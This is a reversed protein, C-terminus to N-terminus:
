KIGLYFVRKTQGVVYNDAKTTSGTSFCASFFPYHHSVNGEELIMHKNYNTVYLPFGLLVLSLIFNSQSAPSPDM